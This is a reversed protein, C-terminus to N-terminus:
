ASDRSGEAQSAPETGPPAMLVAHVPEAEKQISQEAHSMGKKFEQISKGISGALEPLKKPGFFVLAIGAIVILEPSVIM